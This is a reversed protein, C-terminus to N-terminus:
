LYNSLGGFGSQVLFCTNFPVYYRRETSKERSIDLWYRLYQLKISMQLFEVVLITKCGYTQTNVDFWSKYIHMGSSQGLLGHMFLVSLYFTHSLSHPGTCTLKLLRSEFSHFTMTKLTEKHIQSFVRQHHSFKLNSNSFCDVEQFQFSISRMESFLVYYFDM